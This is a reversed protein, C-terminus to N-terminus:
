LYKELLYKLSVFCADYSGNSLDNCMVVGRWYQRNKQPGLYKEDHMYFSGAVLGHMIDGAGNYTMGYKLGQQHGMTFSHKIKSLKNEISGGIPNGTLADPNIFYHSYLIGDINVIELYPHTQWGFEEYQLDELSIVGDFKVPELEIARLIREEHNGYLMHMEPKYRKKRNISAKRNYAVIPNLLTEMAKISSDIDDVYRSNEKTKCGVPDYSGLSPMDAFDGIDIIKDPQKDVIYNGLAELHETPVDKHVQCDPILLHKM